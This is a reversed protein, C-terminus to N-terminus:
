AMSTLVGPEELRDIKGTDEGLRESLDERLEAAEEGTKAETFLFM